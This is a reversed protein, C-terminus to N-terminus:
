QSASSAFQKIQSALNTEAELIRASTLVFKKNLKGGTWVIERWLVLIGEGQSAFSARRILERGYAAFSVDVAFAPDAALREREEYPLTVGLAAALGSLYLDKMQRASVAAKKDPTRVQLLSAPAFRRAYYPIPKAPESKAVPLKYSTTLFAVFLHTFPEVDAEDPRTERPFNALNSVIWDHAVPYFATASEVTSVNLTGADM